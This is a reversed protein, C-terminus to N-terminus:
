GLTKWIWTELALQIHTFSLVQWFGRTEVWVRRISSCPSLTALGNMATTTTHSYAIVVVNGRALFPKDNTMQVNVWAQFAKQFLLEEESYEKFSLFSRPAMHPVSTYTRIHFRLTCSEHKHSTSCTVWLVNSNPPEQLLLSLSTGLLCGSVLRWLENNVM